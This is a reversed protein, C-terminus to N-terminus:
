DETATSEDGENNEDKNLPSYEFVCELGQLEVPQGPNMDLEWHLMPQGGTTFTLFLKNGLGTDATNVKLGDCIVKKEPSAAAALIFEKTVIPQKVENM